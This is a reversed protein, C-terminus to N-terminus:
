HRDQPNEGFPTLPDNPALQNQEFALSWAIMELQGRLKWVDNMDRVVNVTSLEVRRQWATLQALYRKWGPQQFLERYENEIQEEEISM